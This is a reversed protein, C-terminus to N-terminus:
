WGAVWTVLLSDWCQGQTGLGKPLHYPRACQGPWTLLDRYILGRGEAAKKGMSVPLSPRSTEMWRQSQQGGRWPSWRHDLASFAAQLNPFSKKPSKSPGPM